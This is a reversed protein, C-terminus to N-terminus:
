EGYNVLKRYTFEAIVASFIGYSPNVGAFYFGITACWFTMCLVCNFPKFALYTEILYGYPEFTFLFAFMFGVSIVTLWIDYLHNM